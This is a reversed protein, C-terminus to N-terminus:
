YRAGFIATGIRVLTSGEEIAITFDNSMGMSLCDWGCDPFLQRLRAQTKVVRRFAERVPKEDSTFPAMTMLGCPKLSDFVLAAEVARCLADEDTFGSKTEEGSNLEFLLRLSRVDHTQRGLEKVIEIRDISQITDFLAAAAAAKNRQLRGILHLEIEKRSERWPTFKKAAEKVRSEGFLRLGAEAAQEVLSMEQFKSVAMLRVDNVGRGARLCASNIDDMVRQINELVTM